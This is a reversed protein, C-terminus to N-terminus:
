IERKKHANSILGLGPAGGNSISSVCPLHMNADVTDVVNASTDNEDVSCNVLFGFGNSTFTVGRDSALSSTICCVTFSNCVSMGSMSEISM